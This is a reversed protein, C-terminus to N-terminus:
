LKKAIDEASQNYYIQLMRLDRHGVMRALDLVDLKQALRTIATHRCDHFHLDEILAKSKAKRFNADIQTTTLSFALGDKTGLQKLLRIAEPSLSVDRKAAETKGAGVDDGAVHVYSKDLHIDKWRLACIEGARMGTEIAFLMACGIRAGITKPTAAADYGLTFLLTEIDKDSLIRDRARPSSPM